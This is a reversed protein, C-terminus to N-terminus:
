VTETGEPQSERWYNKAIRNQFYSVFFSKVFLNMIIFDRSFDLCNKWTGTFFFKHYRRSMSNCNLLFDDDTKM